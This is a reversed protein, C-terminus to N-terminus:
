DHRGARRFLPDEALIMCDWSEDRRRSRDGPGNFQGLLAPGGYRRIDRHGRNRRARRRLAPAAALPPGPRAGVRAPGADGDHDAGVAAAARIAPWHAPRLSTDRRVILLDALGQREARDPVTGGAENARLPLFV